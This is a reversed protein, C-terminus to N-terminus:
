FIKLEFKDAFQSQYQVEHYVGSRSSSPVIESPLTLIGISGTDISQVRAKEIWFTKQGLVEGWGKGIAERPSITCSDKYIPCCIISVLTGIKLAGQDILNQVESLYHENNMVRKQQRAKEASAAEAEFWSRVEEDNNVANVIKERCAKDVTQLDQITFSKNVEASVDKVCQNFLKIREINDNANNILDIYEQATRSM